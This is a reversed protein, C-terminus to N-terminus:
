ASANLEDLESPGADASVDGTTETVPDPKRFSATVKAAAAAESEQHKKARIAQNRANEDKKAQIARANAAKAEIAKARETELEDDPVSLEKALADSIKMISAKNLNIPAAHLARLAKYFRQMREHKVEEESGKLKVTPNADAVTAGVAEMVAGRFAEMLQGYTRTDAPYNKDKLIAHCAECAKQWAKDLSGVEASGCLKKLPDAIFPLLLKAEFRKGLVRLTNIDKYRAVLAEANDVSQRFRLPHHKALQDVPLNTPNAAVRLDLAKLADAPTDVSLTKGGVVMTYAAKAKARSDDTVSPVQETTKRAKEIVAPSSAFTALRLMTMMDERTAPSTFHQALNHIVNIETQEASVTKGGQAGEPVWKVLFEQPLGVANAAELNIAFTGAYEEKRAAAFKGAILDKHLQINAHLVQAPTLAVSPAATTKINKAM